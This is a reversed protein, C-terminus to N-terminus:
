PTPSPCVAHVADIEELAGPPLWGGEAGGSWVGGVGEGAEWAEMRRAAALLEGLQELSTAGVVASVVLPRSLVFRLALETPSMGYRAAIDVYARVAERVNPKPGYRSEAEAYRGRYRNLRAGPPGGNPALYKGQPAHFPFHPSTLVPHSVACRLNPHPRLVDLGTVPALSRDQPQQHLRIHVPLAAVPIRAPHCNVRLAVSVTTHREPYDLGDQHLSLIRFWTM